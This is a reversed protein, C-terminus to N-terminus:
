DDIDDSSKVKWLSSVDVNVIPLSILPYRPAIRRAFFSVNWRVEYGFVPRDFVLRPKEPAEFADVGFSAQQQWFVTMSRKQDSVVFALAM